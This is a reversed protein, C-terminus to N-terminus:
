FPLDYEGADYDTKWEFDDFDDASPETLDHLWSQGRHPDFFYLWARTDEPIIAARWQDEAEANDDMFTTHKGRGLWRDFDALPSPVTNEPPTVAPPNNEKNDVGPKSAERSACWCQTHDVFPCIGEARNACFDIDAGYDHHFLVQEREMYEVMLTYRRRATLSPPCDWGVFWADWLNELVTLIETVQRKTLREVPPFIGRALGFLEQLHLRQNGYQQDSEEQELPHRFRYSSSAPANRVATELDALLQSIYRQMAANM